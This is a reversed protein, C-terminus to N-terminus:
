APTPNRFLADFTARPDRSGRNRSAAKQLMEAIRSKERAKRETTEAQQQEQRTALEKAKVLRPTQTTKATSM